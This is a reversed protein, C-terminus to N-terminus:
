IMRVYLQLLYFSFHYFTLYMWIRWVHDFEVDTNHSVGLLLHANYDLLYFSTKSLAEAAEVNVKAKLIPTM